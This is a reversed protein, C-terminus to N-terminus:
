WESCRLSTSPSALPPLKVDEESRAVVVGIPKRLYISADTSWLARSAEDTHLYGELQGDLTAHLREALSGTRQGIMRWTYDRPMVGVLPVIEPVDLTSPIM